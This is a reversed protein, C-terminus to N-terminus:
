GRRQEADPLAASFELEASTKSVQGYLADVSFMEYDLPTLRAPVVRFETDRASLEIRDTHKPFLNILPTCFLAFRSADVLNALRETSQDLLVVIEVERGNVRRLGEALGTLAFFYFRSPCAFYEHLLNHGHFKSWTLPLLGEGTGLGEPAVANSTVAALPRGPTGFEGPVGTISAIGAAHLLEFLQSAVQEDGALYVPLRDLQRLDAIQAENTTRLRLACRVLYRGTPRCM